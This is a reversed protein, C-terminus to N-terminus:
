NSVIEVPFKRELISKMTEANATFASNWDEWGLHERPIRRRARQREIRKLAPAEIIFIQDPPTKILAVWHEMEERSIAREFIKLIGQFPGEDVLGGGLVQAKAMKAGMSRFRRFKRETKLEPHEREQGRIEAYIKCTLDWNRIAFIPFYVHRQGLRGVSVIPVGCQRAIQPALQTKGAGPAGM